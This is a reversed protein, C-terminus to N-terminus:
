LDFITSPFIMVLSILNIWSTSDAHQVGAGAEESAQQSDTEVEVAQQSDTEVEVAQQSVSAEEAQQGVGSAVERSSGRHLDIPVNRPKIEDKTM